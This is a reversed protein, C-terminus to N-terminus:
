DSWPSFRNDNEIIEPVNLVVNAEFFVTNYHERNAEQLESHHKETGWIKFSILDWTDGQITRYRENSM